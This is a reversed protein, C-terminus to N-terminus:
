KSCLNDKIKIRKKPSEQSYQEGPYLSEPLEVAYSTYYVGPELGRFVFDIYPTKNHRRKKTRVLEGNQRLFARIKVTSGYNNEPPRVRILIFDRFRGIFKNKCRVTVETDPKAPVTTPDPDNCDPNGNGNDDADSVGCGCVGLETKNADSPCDDNCDETGDSDTDADSVGCGCVGEAIKAADEPCGDSCDDTSDSDADGPVVGPPQLLCQMDGRYVDAQGHFDPVVLTTATSSYAIFQGNGNIVASVSAGNAQGGTDKVSVRKTLNNTVDRAFIDTAGNSDGAVLNEADSEFVVFQGDGNISPGFSDGTGITGSAGDKRSLLTIKNTSSDASDWLYVQLSTNSSTGAVLDTAASYFAIKSGDDSISPALSEADVEGGNIDSSIKDITAGVRDYRYVDTVGDDTDSGTLNSALSVFAVYRGDSSISPSGSLENANVMSAHSVLTVVSTSLRLLYVDPLGDDLEGVTLNKATSAFAVYAGDDSIVPSYSPGDGIENALSMSILTTTGSGVNHLFIDTTDNTDNAVLDTADSAFVILNGDASISPSFSNGDSSSGTSDDSILTTTGSTVDRLFINSRGQNSVSTFNGTSVFVVYRGNSSTNIGPTVSPANLQVESSNVSVRDLPNFEAQSITASSLLLIPLLRLISKVM